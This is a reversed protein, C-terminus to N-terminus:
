KGHLLPVPHWPRLIIYFCFLFLFDLVYSIFGLQLSALLRMDEATWVKSNRGITPGQGSLFLCFLFSDERSGMSLSMSDWRSSNYAQMSGVCLEADNSQCTMVDCFGFGSLLAPNDNGASTSLMVFWIIPFDTNQVIGWLPTSNIKWQSPCVSSIRFFCQHTRQRM